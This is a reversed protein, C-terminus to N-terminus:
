RDEDDETPCFADVADIKQSIADLHEKMARVLVTQALRLPDDDDANISIRSLEEKEFLYSNHLKAYERVLEERKSVWWDEGERSDKAYKKIDAYPDPFRDRVSRALDAEKQIDEAYEDLAERITMLEDETFKETM